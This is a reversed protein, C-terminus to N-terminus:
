VGVIVGVSIAWDNFNKIQELYGEQIEEFCEACYGREISDVKFPLVLIDGDNAAISEAPLQKIIPISFTTYQQPVIPKTPLKYEFSRLQENLAPDSFDYICKGLNGEERTKTYDGIIHKGCKDCTYITADKRISM